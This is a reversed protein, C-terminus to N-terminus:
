ESENPSTGPYSIPHDKKIHNRIYRIFRFFVYFVVMVLITGSLIPVWCGSLHVHSLGIWVSVLAIFAAYVTMLGCVITLCVLWIKKITIPRDTIM